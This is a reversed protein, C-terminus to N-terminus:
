HASRAKFKQVRIKDNEETKLIEKKDSATESNISADKSPSTESIIVPKIDENTVGVGVQGNIDEEKIGPNTKSETKNLELFQLQHVDDRVGAANIADICSVCTHYHTCWPYTCM